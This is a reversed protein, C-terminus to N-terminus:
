KVTPKVVNTAIIQRAATQLGSLPLSNDNGGVIRNKLYLSSCWINREPDCRSSVSHYLQANFYLIDGPRLAVAIGLTPFTFYLTVEDYMQFTKEHDDDLNTVISYASDDDKHSNLCVNLATAISSYIVTRRGDSRTMRPYQVATKAVRMARKYRNPMYEWAKGECWDIYHFIADHEERDLKDLGRDGMGRGGRLPYIGPLLYKHNSNKQFAVIRDKGRPTKTNPSQKSLRRLAMVLKYHDIDNKMVEERPLLVIDDEGGKGDLPYSFGHVTDVVLLADVPKVISGAPVGSIDMSGQEGCFFIPNPSDKIENEAMAKKQAHALFNLKEKYNSPMTLSGPTLEALRKTKAKGMPKGKYTMAEL